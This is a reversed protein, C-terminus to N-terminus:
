RGVGGIPDASSLSGVIEILSNDILAGVAARLTSVEFQGRLKASLDDFRAVDWDLLLDLIRQAAKAVQPDPTAVGKIEHPGRHRVMPALVTEGTIEDPPGVRVMDYPVREIEAKRLFDKLSAAQIIECWRAKLAAEQEALVDEGRHLSIDARFQPDKAITERLSDAWDLGKNTHIGFTLHVSDQDTVEARHFLGRPVYLVDGAELMFEAVVNRPSARGAKAKEEPLPNIEEQDYIYWRKNGHVQLVFVDHPDYHMAFAGGGGFTIYGNVHVPHKLHAEIQRAVRRIPPSLDQVRNLVVSANQKLLGALKVTDVPARDNDRRYFTPPVDRGDKSIRLRKTDLLNQTLLGNIFSWPLLHKFRDRSEQEIHVHKKETFYQLFEAEGIPKVLASFSLPDISKPLFENDSNEVNITPM